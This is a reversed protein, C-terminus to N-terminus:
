NETVSNAPKPGPGRWEFVWRVRLAAAKAYDAETRDSRTQSWDRTSRRARSRAKNCEVCTYNSYREVGGCVSCPASM